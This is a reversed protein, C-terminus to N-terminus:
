NRGSRRGTRGGRRSPSIAKVRDPLANIIDSRDAPAMRSWGTIEAISRYCGLCLGSEPEIVCVKICPSEIEQRQWIDDSM